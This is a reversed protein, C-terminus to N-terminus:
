LLTVIICVVAVDFTFCIDSGSNLVPVRLIEYASLSSWSYHKHFTNRMAHTSDAAKRECLAVNAGWILGGGSEEVINGSL